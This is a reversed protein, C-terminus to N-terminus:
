TRREISPFLGDTPLAIGRLKICSFVPPLSHRTLLAFPGIIWRSLRAAAYQGATTCVPRQGARPILGPAPTGAAACPGAGRSRWRQPRPIRLHRGGAWAGFGGG